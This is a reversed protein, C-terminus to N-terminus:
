VAAGVAVGAGVGLATTATAITSKPKVGGVVVTDRPVDTRQVFVPAAGCLTVAWPPENALAVSASFAVKM